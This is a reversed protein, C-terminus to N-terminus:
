YWGRKIVTSIYYTKFDHLMQGGVTSKKFMTKAIRLRQGRWIFETTQKDNDM